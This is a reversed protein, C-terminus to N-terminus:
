SEKVRPSSKQRWDSRKTDRPYGVLAWWIRDAHTVIVAEPSREISDGERSHAGIAHAVRVPMGVTMAIYFGWVSHRAVQYHMGDELKPMDPTPGYFTGGVYLGTQGARWECPKGVDHCLCATLVHDENIHEVELSAISDLIGRAIRVVHKQHDINSLNPHREYMETPVDELRSYGGIRCSMTWAKVAKDRLEPDSILGLEPELSAKVSAETIQESV